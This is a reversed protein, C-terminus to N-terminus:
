AVNDGTVTEQTGKAIGDHTPTSQNAALADQTRPAVNCVTDEKDCIDQLWGPIIQGHARLYNSLPFAMALTGSGIFGQAMSNERVLRNTTRFSLRKKRDKTAPMITNRGLIEIQWM